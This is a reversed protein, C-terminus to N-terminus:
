ISSGFIADISDSHLSEWVDGSNEILHKALTITWVNWSKSMLEFNDRGVDCNKGGVPLEDLQTVSGETEILNVVMTQEYLKPSKDTWRGGLVEWIGGEGSQLEIRYTRKLCLM